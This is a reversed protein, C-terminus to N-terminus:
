LEITLVATVIDNFGGASDILLPASIFEPSSANNIGATTELYNAALNAESVSSTSGCETAIGPSVGRRQDLVVSGPALVLAVVDTAIIGEASNLTFEATPLDGILPETSGGQKYSSAVFYRLCTSSADRLPPLGLTMWPLWGDASSSGCPTEELGDGDEDPCPLYRYNLGTEANLDADSLRAYAILANKAEALVRTNQFPSALKHSTRSM